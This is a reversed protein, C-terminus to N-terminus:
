WRSISSASAKACQLLGAQMVQEWHGMKLSMRPRKRDGQSPGRVSLPGTVDVGYVVPEGRLLTARMVTRDSLITKHGLDGRQAQAGDPGYGYEMSAVDADVPLKCSRM